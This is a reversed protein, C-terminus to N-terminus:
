DPELARGTITYSKLIKMNKSLCILGENLYIFHEQLPILVDGNRNVVGKFKGLQVLFLDFGLYKIEDYERKFIFSGTRDLGGM